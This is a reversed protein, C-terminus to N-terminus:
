GLRLFGGIRIRLRRTSRAVTGLGRTTAVQERALQRAGQHLDEVLLQFGLPQRRM